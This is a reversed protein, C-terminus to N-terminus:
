KVNNYIELGLIKIILGENYMKEDQVIKLSHVYEIEYTLSKYIISGGDKLQNKIPFLLVLLTIIISIIIIKKKM